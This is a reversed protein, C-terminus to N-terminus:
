KGCLTKIYASEAMKIYTTPDISLDFLGRISDIFFRLTSSRWDRLFEKSENYKEVGTANEEAGDFDLFSGDLLVNHGPHLYNHVIGARHLKGLQRGLRISMRELYPPILQLYAAIQGLNERTLYDPVIHDPLFVGPGALQEQNVIHQLLIYRKLMNDFPLEYFTFEDSFIERYISEMLDLMRFPTTFARFQVVPVTGKAVLHSNKAEDVSIVGEPGLVEHIEAIAITPVAMIDLSLLKNAISADYLAWEENCLGYTDGRSVRPATDSPSVFTTKKARTNLERYVTSAFGIGKADIFPFKWVTGGIEITVAGETTILGTREHEPRAYLLCDPKKRDKKRVALQVAYATPEDLTFGINSGVLFPNVWVVRNDVRIAGVPQLVGCEIFKRLLSEQPRLSARRKETDQTPVVVELM